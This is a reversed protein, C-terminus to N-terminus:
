KTQREGGDVANWESTPGAGLVISPDHMEMAVYIAQEGPSYGVSWWAQFGLDDDQWDGFLPARIPYRAIGPPWDGLDGDIAIGSVPVAIAVAGNHADAAGALGVALLAAGLVGIARSRM